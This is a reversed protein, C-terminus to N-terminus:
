NLIIWVLLCVCWYWVFYEYKEFNLVLESCVALDDCEAMKKPCAEIKTGTMLIEMRVKPSKTDILVLEM